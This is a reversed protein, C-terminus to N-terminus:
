RDRPVERSGTDFNQAGTGAGKASAANLLVPLRTLDDIAYSAPLQSNVILRIRENSERARQAPPLRSLQLDTQAHAVAAESFPTLGINARIADVHARLTQGAPFGVWANRAEDFYETGAQGILEVVLSGAYSRGPRITVM